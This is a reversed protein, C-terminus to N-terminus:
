TPKLAKKIEKLALQKFSSPYALKQCSQNINRHPLIPIYRLYRTVTKIMEREEQMFDASKIPM